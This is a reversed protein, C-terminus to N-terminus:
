DVGFTHTVFSVTASDSLPAGPRVFGFEGKPVAIVRVHYIDTAIKRSEFPVSMRDPGQRLLSTGGDLTRFERRDDRKFLQLLVYEAATTNPACRIVFELPVKLRTASRANAITATLGAAATTRTNTIEGPIRRLTGDLLAYVGQEDPLPASWQAASVSRLPQPGPRETTVREKDEIRGIELPQLEGIMVRGLEEDVIRLFAAWRVWGMATILMDVRVFVQQGATIDLEIATDKPNAGRTRSAFTHRGPPVRIGFYTRKKPTAVKRGDALITISPLPGLMGPPMQYDHFYFYVTGATPRAVNDQPVAFATGDWRALALLLVLQPIV